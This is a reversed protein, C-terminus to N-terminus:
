FNSKAAEVRNRLERVRQKAKNLKSPRKIRELGEELSEGPKLEFLINDQRKKVNKASAYGYRPRWAGDDWIKGRKKRNKIGHERAYRKWKTEAVSTEPIRRWRPISFNPVRPLETLKGEESHHCLLEKIGALLATSNRTSIDKVRSEIDETRLIPETDVLVLHHFCHCAFSNM